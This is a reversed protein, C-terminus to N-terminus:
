RSNLGGADTVMPTVNVQGLLEGRDRATQHLIAKQNDGFETFDHGDFDEAHALDAM